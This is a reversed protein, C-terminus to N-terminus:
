KETNSPQLRSVPSMVPVHSAILHPMHNVSITFPREAICMDPQEIQYRRMRRDVDRRGQPREMVMDSVHCRQSTRVPLQAHRMAGLRQCFRLLLVTRIRAHTRCVDLFPVFVSSTTPGENEVRIGKQSARPVSFRLLILSIRNALILLLM